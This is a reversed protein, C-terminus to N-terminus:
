LNSGASLYTEMGLPLMGLPHGVQWVREWVYEALDWDILIWTGASSSGPMAVLLAPVGAFGTQVCSRAALGATGIDLSSLQRLIAGHEPGFLGLCAQGSTIDYALDFRFGSLQKGVDEMHSAGAPRTSLLLCRDKSLVCAHTDNELKVVQGSRAEGSWSRVLDDVGHGELSIKGMASLDALALGNRAAAQEAAVSSYVSALRWSGYDAFSAGQAKQWAHLPSYAIATTM